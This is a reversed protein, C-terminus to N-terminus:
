LSGSILSDDCVSTLNTTPTPPVPNGRTLYGWSSKLGDLKKARPEGIAINRVTRPALISPSSYLNGVHEPNKLIKWGTLQRIM